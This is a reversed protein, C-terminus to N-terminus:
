PRLTTGVFAPIGLLLLLVVSSYVIITFWRGRAYRATVMVAPFATLLMRPNAPVYESTLALVSIGLTWAIAGASIEHRSYWLLTLMVVLVVTGVLGLVLNDDLPHRSVLRTALHVVAFLDTRESWGHHQAIYNAFPSGAWGWLFVAFAVAGTVSLAPAALSARARRWSWDCRRFEILASVACALTLGLAVPQVATAFGALVGALVWRRRELAYLCGAALPLLIGESYVMSFVVAGPFVVFLITARRAAAIGWWGEALRHVLVTAVYGGVGSILLGAVTSAWIQNHVTLTTFVPELLWIALPFLPFFGLTTQAYSVHDPYGHNALQRYWLGDWHALEGQLDHHGFAGDLYAALLILLRVALYIVAIWLLERRAGPSLRAPRRARRRRPEAIAPAPPDAVTARPAPRLERLATVSRSTVSGSGSGIRGPLDEIEAGTIAATEDPLPELPEPATEVAASHLDVSILFRYTALRVVIM